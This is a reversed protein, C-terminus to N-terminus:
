VISLEGKEECIDTGNCDCVCGRQRMVLTKVQQILCGNLMGSCKRPAELYFTLYQICLITCRNITGM